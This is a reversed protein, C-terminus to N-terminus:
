YEASLDSQIVTGVTPAAAVAAFDAISQGLAAKAKAAM